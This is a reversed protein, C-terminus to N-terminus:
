FLWRLDIMLYIKKDNYSPFICSKLVEFSHPCGLFHGDDSDRSYFNDKCPYRVLFLGPMISFHWKTLSNPSFKMQHRWLHFWNKDIMWPRPCRLFILWVGKSPRMHKSIAPAIINKGLTHNNISQIRSFLFFLSFIRLKPNNQIKWNM